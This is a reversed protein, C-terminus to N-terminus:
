DRKRQILDRIGQDAILADLVRKAMALSGQDTFHVTDVFHIPDGPILDDGDILLAHEARAADVIVENYRAYGVLLGDLSMFPMYVLASVAAREQQEATHGPRLHTSFTAVAVRAGTATAEQLLTALENRFNGGLKSADVVLRQDSGSKEARLAAMVRLNKAVLEWLLSNRELWGPGTAPRPESLGAQQALENVEGSLDNTAHYVVIIDPQLAAVRHRLNKRSSAVTYGPVGGNVFDFTTEPFRRRLEEVVLQPWVAADSSVEACYTTSAGLFALRVTHAPKPQTIEPGRFGAANTSVKGVKLNPKLVRLGIREDTRYLDTFSATTGFKTWQRLRVAGEALLVLVLVLVLPVIVLGVIRVARSAPLSETTTRSPDLKCGDPFQRRM